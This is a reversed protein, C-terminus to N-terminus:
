QNLNSQAQGQQNLWNDRSPISAETIAQDVILQILKENYPLEISNDAVDIVPPNIFYTIVGSIVNTPRVNVVSGSLYYIPHIADGGAYAGIFQSTKRETAFETHTGTKFPSTIEVKLVQYCNPIDISTASIDFTANVPIIAGTVAQLCEIERTDKSDKQYEQIKKDVVNINANALFQNMRADDIFGLGVEGAKVNFKIKVDAGTM